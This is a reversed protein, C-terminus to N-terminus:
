DAKASELLKDHFDSTLLQQSVTATAAKGTKQTSCKAQINNATTNPGKVAQAFSITMPKPALSSLSKQAMTRLTIQPCNSHIQLQQVIDNLNNRQAWYLVTKGKKDQIDIRAGYALLSNVISHVNHEPNLKHKKRVAGNSMRLAWHLATRGKVGDIANVSPKYKIITDVLHPNGSIAAFMLATTGGHTKLNVQAGNDLLRAVVADHGQLAALMLATQGDYNQLNVQAGHDLLLAIVTEHGHLAAATLATTGNHNKLNVKACYDLLRTIVASYGQLAALMLATQGDHSQHNVQAGHDLLLAVVADYGRLAAATLATQGEHNQFNVQAGHDLLHAVVANNGKLAAHILATNRKQQDDISVLNTQSRTDRHMAHILQHAHRDNHSSSAICQIVLFLNLMTIKKIM